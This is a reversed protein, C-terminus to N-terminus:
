SRRLHTLQPDEDALRDGLRADLQEALPELDVDVRVVGSSSIM